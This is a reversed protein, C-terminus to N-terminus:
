GVYVNVGEEFEGLESKVTFSVNVETRDETLQNTFIFDTVEKIRDDVLLAETIRRELEAYVFPIPEGYLDKFEVGYNWSYIIYEYRETQLIKYVAQRIAELGDTYGVVNNDSEFHLKYTNTPEKELIIDQTLDTTQPILRYM